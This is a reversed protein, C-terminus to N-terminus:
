LQLAEMLQQPSSGPPTGVLTLFPGKRFLLVCGSPDAKYLCQVGSVNVLQMSSRAAYRTMWWALRGRNVSGYYAICTNWDRGARDRYRAATLNMPTREPLKAVLRLLEPSAFAGAAGDLTPRDAGSPTLNRIETLALGEPPAAPLAGFTSRVAPDGVLREGNGVAAALRDAVPFVAPQPAWVVIVRTGASNMLVHVLTETTRISYGSYADGTSKQLQVATRGGGIAQHIRGAVIAATKSSRPMEFVAVQVPPSQPGTSYTAAGVAFAGSMLVGPDIVPPVPSWLSTVDSGRDLRLAGFTTPLAPSTSVRDVPLEFLTGSLSPPLSPRNRRPAVYSGGGFLIWAAALVVVLVTAGAIWAIPAGKWAARESTGAATLLSPARMAAARIGLAAGCAECFAGGSIVEGGCSPCSTGSASVGAGAPISAGCASCFADDPELAAGCAFCVREGGGPAVAPRHSVRALSDPTSASAAGAPVTATGTAPGSALYAPIVLNIFPVLLLWATWGPKERVRAIASWVIVLAVLNVFPILLGIVWAPSKRGVSCMLLLNAFPVWAVWPRPTGTKSAIIMLCAAAYLYAALTFAILPLFSSPDLLSGSGSM